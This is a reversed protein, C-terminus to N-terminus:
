KITRTIKIEDINGLFFNSKNQISGICLSQESNEYLESVMAQSQLTDNLYCSLNLGDVKFTMKIPKNLEVNCVIGRGKFAFIYQNPNEQQQQIVFGKNGDLNSIITGGSNINTIANSPPTFFVDVMFQSGLQIRKSNAEFLKLNEDGNVNTNLYFATQNDKILKPQYKAFEKKKYYYLSPNNDITNLEYYAGILNLLKTNMPRYFQPEMFIKYNGRKLKELIQEYRKKTFLEVFGPSACSTTKSLYHYLGQYHEATLMLVSENDNCLNNIASTTVKINNDEALNSAKDKKSYILEQFKSFSGLLQFPAFGILFLSMTFIPIFLNSEKAKDLLKDAFLALLMFVEFNTVFLNWNHSRGQYYTLGITGIFTLIFISLTYNTKQNTFFHHISVVWGIIYVLAVLMWPHMITPMPLMGFGISSFTAITKFLITIDPTANYFFKIFFSYMMFAFFLLLIAQTLTFALQIISHKINETNFELFVYFSILSLFSFTGFDPSWLVGFAFVFFSVLKIPIFELTNLLIFKRFFVSQSIEIRKIYFPVFALLVMPFLWRIPHTSYIADYNIVTKQYGYCVFFVSCFGLLVIFKNKITKNLTYYLFIFCLCLLVGMILSFNLISFGTLKLIPVLFHPYMGYTNTFDDVLLPFGNYVQVVSYFVANFDFKNEFTYPFEFTSIALSLIGLGVCIVLVSKKLLSNILESLKINKILLFFIIPFLFFTYVVFRKHLFTQIFYFDFNTKTTTDHSNQPIAFFPNASFFCNSLFYIFLLVNVATILNFTLNKVEGDKKKFLRNLVFYFVFLGLVVLVISGLFMAKEKPEPQATGPNLLIDQAIKNAEEINAIYVSAIFKSSLFALLLGFWTM